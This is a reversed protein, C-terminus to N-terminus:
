HIHNGQQALYEEDNDDCPTNTDYIRKKFTEELVQLVAKECYFQDTDTTSTSTDRKKRIYGEECVSCGTKNCM